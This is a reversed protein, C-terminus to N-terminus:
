KKIITEEFTDLNLLCAIGSFASLNDICVKKNNEYWYAGVVIDPNKDNLRDMLHPIPTHGHVVVCNKFWEENWDEYIHDRNWILEFEDPITIKDPNEEDLWPTYGAHSMLVVIGDKNIYEAHVPLEDLRSAWDMNAGDKWWDQFTYEGGNRKLLLFARSEVEPNRQYAWMSAILMDEHNGKIYEFQDDEYITKILEWGDPGRDGADGLYFVKDEPQLIEKIKTYLDKRGHLDTCAYVSMDFDGRKM